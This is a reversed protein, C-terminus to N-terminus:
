LEVLTALDTLHWILRLSYYQGLNGSRELM